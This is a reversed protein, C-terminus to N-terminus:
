EARNAWKRPPQTWFITLSMSGKLKQSLNKPFKPWLSISSADELVSTLCWIKLLTWDESTELKNLVFIFNSISEINHLTLEIWKM